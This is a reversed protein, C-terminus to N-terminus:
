TRQHHGEQHREGPHLGPVVECATALFLLYWARPTPPGSSRVLESTMKDIWEVSMSVSEFQSSAISLSVRISKMICDKKDVGAQILRTEKEHISLCLRRWRRLPATEYKQMANTKDVPNLM